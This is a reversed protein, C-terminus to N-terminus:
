ILHAIGESRSTSVSHSGFGSDGEVGSDEHDMIAKVTYMDKKNGYNSSTLLRTAETPGILFL